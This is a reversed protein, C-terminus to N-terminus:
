PTFVPTITLCNKSPMLGKSEPLTLVKLQLHLFKISNDYSKRDVFYPVGGKGGHAFSYKAPGKWSSKTEFILEAILTLARVTSPGVDIISTSREFWQDITSDKRKSLLQNVSSFLDRCNQNDRLTDVVVKQSETSGISTMDLVNNGYIVNGIIGSHPETM